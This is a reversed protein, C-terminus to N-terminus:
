QTYERIIISSKTIGGFLRAGAAGNFTVTGATGSGGNVKFTTSSTTGAVMVHTVTLTTGGSATGQFQTNAALANATSDQFIAGTLHSAGGANALLLTAQIVLINNASRPTIAQSMFTKGETLQPITDDHPITTSTTDVASYTTYVTQVCTGVPLLTSQKLPNNLIDTGSQVTRTISATHTQVMGLHIGNSVPASGSVGSNVETYSLTATNSGSLAVVDVYTDKSATFTKSASNLTLRRGNIYVVGSSISAILGSAVGITGGSYVYDAFSEDFWQHMGTNASGDKIATWMEAVNNMNVTAGSSHAVATTGGVGRGGSTPVTVFNAGKSTYWVVERNTSSDPEIVLYGESPTPLTDLYITTDAATITSSLTSSYFNQFDLNPTAM